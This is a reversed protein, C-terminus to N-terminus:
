KCADSNAPRHPSLLTIEIRWQMPSGDPASTHIVVAYSGAGADLQCSSADSKALRASEPSHVQGNGHRQRYSRWYDPNRAHWAQQAAQQNARYDPDSLMKQQNWLRRRERQCSPESCYAQGPSQPRALFMADCSACVKYVM